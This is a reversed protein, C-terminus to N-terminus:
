EYLNNRVYLFVVTPLMTSDIDFYKFIEDHCTANIWTFHIPSMSEGAKKDLDELLAVKQEFSEREYDIATSAPLLGIACYNHSTCVEEFDEQSKIEKFVRPLSFAEASNGTPNQLKFREELTKREYAEWKGPSMELLSKLVDM